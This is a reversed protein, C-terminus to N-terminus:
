YQGAINGNEIDETLQQVIRNSDISAPVYGKSANTGANNIQKGNQSQNVIKDFQVSLNTLLFNAKLWEHKLANDLFHNLIRASSLEDWVKDTGANKENYLKELRKVISKLHNANAGNFTPKSGIQTEYFRFWIEVFNNWFATPEKKEPANAVPILVEQKQKLKPKQKLKDKTPLLKSGVEVSVESSVEVSVENTVKLFDKLSYSTNANGSQTKFDLVGAQKLRNRSNSLTPFSIGLDACIKSNNRKFTPIWSVKNNVELLYFYIAITNPPFCEIEQVRWFGKIQEIYNM